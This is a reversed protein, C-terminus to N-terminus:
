LIALFFKFSRDVEVPGYGLTYIDFYARLANVDVKARCLGFTKCNILGARFTFM